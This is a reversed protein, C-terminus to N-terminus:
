LLLSSIYFKRPVPAPIYSFFGAQLQNLRLMFLKGRSCGTLRRICAIKSWMASFASSIKIVFFMARWRATYPVTKDASRFRPLIRNCPLPSVISSQNVCIHLIKSWLVFVLIFFEHISHHLSLLESSDIVDRVSVKGM